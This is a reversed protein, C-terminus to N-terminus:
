LRTKRVMLCFLGLIPIESIKVFRIQTKLHVDEQMLLIIVMWTRPLKWQLLHQVTITIHHLLVTMKLTSTMWPGDFGHVGYCYKPHVMLNYPFYDPGHFNYIGYCYKSINEKSFIAFVANWFTFLGYYIFPDLHIIGIYIFQLFRVWDILEIISCRDIFRGHRWKVLVPWSSNQLGENKIEM